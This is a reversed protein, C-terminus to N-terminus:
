RRWPDRGAVLGDGMVILQTPRSSSQASAGPTSRADHRPREVRSGLGVTPCSRHASSVRDGCRRTGRGALHCAAETTTGNPCACGRTIGRDRPQLRISASCRLGLQLGTASTSATPRHAGPSRTRALRDHCVTAACASSPASAIASHEDLRSGRVTSSGVAGPACRAHRESRPDAAYRGHAHPPEARSGNPSSAM